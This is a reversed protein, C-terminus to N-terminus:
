PARRGLLFFRETTEGLSAVPGRLWWEVDVLGAAAAVRRVAVPDHLVVEPETSAEGPLSDPQLVGAGAHLGIVLWGGPLLPRVLAEVAHSLESPALHILSHWAVVVAWGQGHQPRMLRRLDGTTVHLDPHLRQARAVMVPSLDLGSVDTAVAPDADTAAAALAATVHGSGCGVDVVPGGAALVAVRRLLWQEFPQGVLDDSGDTVDADDAAALADYAARVRTDRAEPGDRLVHEADPGVAAPAEDEHHAALLHTWRHDQQGVRLPLERVLPQDRDAMGALCAEVEGRDAFAHLREARTRLEGPAQPGRLLLLTLLALEGAGLDLVEDLTQHYKLTRRGTAAWVIRLLGREKLGRATQEILQEDHDVVPDRSSTQNCATRLGSLSLPYSAPVTRQKELLAGLVRQEVASLVPLDAM